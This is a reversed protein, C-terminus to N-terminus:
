TSAPEGTIQPLIRGFVSDAAAETDSWYRGHLRFGRLLLTGGVGVPQTRGDILYDTNNPTRGGDPEDRIQIAFVTEHQPPGDRFNSALVDSPSFVNTWHGPAGELADRTGAYDPRFARILDIPCGFTVLEDVDCLRGPPPSTPSLFADLAALSGFSYAVVVIRGYTVDPRNQM